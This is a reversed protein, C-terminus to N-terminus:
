RHRGVTGRDVAPGRWIWQGSVVAATALEAELRQVVAADSRAVEARAPPAAARNAPQVLRLSLRLLRLVLELSSQPEQPKLPQELVLAQGLVLQQKLMWRKLLRQRLLWYRLLRALPLGERFMWCGSAAKVPLQLMRAVLQLLQM